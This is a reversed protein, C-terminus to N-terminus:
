LAAALLIGKFGLDLIDPKRESGGIAENEGLLFVFARVSPGRISLKGQQGHGTQRYKKCGEEATQSLKLAKTEETGEAECTRASVQRAQKGRIKINM